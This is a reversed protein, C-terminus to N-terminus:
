PKGVKMGQNNGLAIIALKANKEKESTKQEPPIVVGEITKLYFEERIKKLFMHVDDADKELYHAAMAAVDEPSFDQNLEYYVYFYEQIYSMLEMIHNSMFDQNDDSLMYLYSMAKHLIPNKDYERQRKQAKYLGLIKSRGLFQRSKTIFSERFERRVISILGENMIVCIPDPMLGLVHVAKALQPSRDHWRKFETQLQTM